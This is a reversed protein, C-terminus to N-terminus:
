RKKRILRYVTRLNREDAGLGDVKPTELIVPVGAISADGLLARFGADGIFGKGIEEHRDVRCGAERKSDNLHILRLRGRGIFRHFEEMVKRYGAPTSLDYGAAFVHCTDMCVFLREPHRSAAMIDRLHEFRWGVSHGQGSTTELLVEVGGAWFGDFARDLSEAIRRVARGEGEGRFSGPHVVLCAVGLLAARRMEDVAARLSRKLVEGRGALNILYGSHAFLPMGGHERAAKRFLAADEEGPFPAEWRNPNKLFLQAANIKLADVREWFRALGGAASVHVGIARSATRM